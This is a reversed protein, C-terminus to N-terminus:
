LWIYYSSIHCYSWHSLPSLVIESIEYCSHITDSIHRFFFFSPSGYRTCTKRSLSINVRIIWSCL